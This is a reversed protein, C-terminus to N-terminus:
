LTVFLGVTFLVNIIDPETMDSSYIISSQKTDEKLFLNNFQTRLNFNLFLSNYLQLDYGFSFGAGIRLYNKKFDLNGRSSNEKVKVIFDNISLEPSFYLNEYFNYHLSFAIQWLSLTNESEGFPENFCDCSNISNWLSNNIQATLKFNDNIDYKLELGIHYTINYGLGDFGNLLSEDVSKLAKTPKNVLEKPSLMDNFGFNL